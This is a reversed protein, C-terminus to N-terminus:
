HHIHYTYVCSSRCYFAVIRGLGVQVSSVQQFDSEQFDSLSMRWLIINALVRFPSPM